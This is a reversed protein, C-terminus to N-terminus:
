LTKKLIRKSLIAEWTKLNPVQFEPNKYILNM